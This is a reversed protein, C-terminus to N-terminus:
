KLAMYFLYVNIISLNFAFEIDFSFRLKTTLKISLEAAPLPYSVSFVTVFTFLAGWSFARTGDMGLLFFLGAGLACWSMLSSPVVCM